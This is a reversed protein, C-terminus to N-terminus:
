EAESEKESGIAERLDAALVALKLCTEPNAKRDRRWTRDISWILVEAEDIDLEIIM